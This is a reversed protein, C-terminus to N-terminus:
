GGYEGRGKQVTVQGKWLDIVSEQKCKPCFLPFNKLETKRDVHLRTKRGCVPRLVIGKDDIM